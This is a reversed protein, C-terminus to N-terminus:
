NSQPLNKKMIKSLIKKLSNALTIDKLELDEQKPTPNRSGPSKPTLNSPMKTTKFLRSLIGSKTSVPDGQSFHMSM